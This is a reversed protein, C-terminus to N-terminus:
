TTRSAAGSRSRAGQRHRHRLRSLRRDFRLQHDRRRHREALALGLASKGSATPGLVALVLPSAVMRRSCCTCSSRPSCILLGLQQRADDAIQLSSQAHEIALARHRDTQRTLCPRRSRRVEVRQVEAMSGSVCRARHRDDGDANRAAARRQLLVHGHLVGQGIPINPRCRSPRIRRRPDRQLRRPQLSSRRRSCRRRHRHDDGDATSTSSCCSTARPVDDGGAPHVLQPAGARRLPAAM